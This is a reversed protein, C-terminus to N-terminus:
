EHINCHTNKRWTVVNQFANTQLAKKKNMCLTKTINLKDFSTNCIQYIYFRMIRLPIHNEDLENHTKYM